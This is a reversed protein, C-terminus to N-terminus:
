LYKWKIPSLTFRELKWCYVMNFHILKRELPPSSSCRLRILQPTDRVTNLAHRSRQQCKVCLRHFCLEAAAAHETNRRSLTLVFMAAPVPLDSIKVRDLNLLRCFSFWSFRSRGTLRYFGLNIFVATFHSRWHRQILGRLLWGRQRLHWVSIAKESCAVGTFTINKPPRIHQNSYSTPAPIFITWIHSFGSDDKSALPQKYLLPAAWVDSFVM